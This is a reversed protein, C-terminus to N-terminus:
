TANNSKGDLDFEYSRWYIRPGGGSPLRNEPADNKRNVYAKAAAETSFVSDPFDNSMVVYVQM